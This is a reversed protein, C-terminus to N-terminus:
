FHGFRLLRRQWRRDSRHEVLLELLDFRGTLQAQIWTRLAGGRLLAKDAKCKRTPADAAGGEVQANQLGKRLSIKEAGDVVDGGNGTPAVDAAPQHTPHVM